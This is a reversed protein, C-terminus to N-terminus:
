CLSLSVIQTFQGRIEADLAFTAENRAVQEDRYLIDKKLSNM